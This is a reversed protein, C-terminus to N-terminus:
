GINVFDLFIRLSKEISCKEISCKEISGNKYKM